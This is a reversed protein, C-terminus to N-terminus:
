PPRPRPRRRSPRCAPRRQPLLRNVRRTTVRELTSPRHKRRGPWAGFGFDALPRRVANTFCLHGRREGRGELPSPLLDPRRSARLRAVEEIVEDLPQGRIFQMAYFCRDGDEGVEFVPVINTHHLRAAAKAELRFRELGSGDKAAHLPLVKLAVHRGLTLQEAEYVIGMGGQGVKRLIRYGGIRDPLDADRDTEAGAFSGTRGGVSRDLSAAEDMLVMM